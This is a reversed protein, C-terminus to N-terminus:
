PPKGKVMLKRIGMQLFKVQDIKFQRQKKFSISCIQWTIKRAIIILVKVIKLNSKKSQYKKVMRKKNKVEKGKFWCTKSQNSKSKNCGPHNNKMMMKMMLYKKYNKNSKKSKECKSAVLMLNCPIKGSKLNGNKLMINKNKM